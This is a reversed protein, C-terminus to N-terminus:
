DTSHARTGSLAHRGPRIQNTARALSRAGKLGIRHRHVVRSRIPQNGIAKSARKKYGRILMTLAVM